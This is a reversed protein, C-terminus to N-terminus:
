DLNAVMVWFIVHLLIVSPMTEHWTLVIMSPTMISPTMMSPAMMSLTMISLKTVRTEYKSNLLVKPQQLGNQHGPKLNPLVLGLACNSFKSRIFVRAKNNIAANAFIGILL